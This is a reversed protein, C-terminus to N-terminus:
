KLIRIFIASKNKNLIKLMRKEITVLHDDQNLTLHNIDELHIKQTKDHFTNGAIFVNNHKINNYAELIFLM